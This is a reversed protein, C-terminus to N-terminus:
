IFLNLSCICHLMFVIHTWLFLPPTLHNKLNWHSVPNSWLLCNSSMKSSIIVANSQLVSTSMNWLHIDSNLWTIITIQKLILSVFLLVLFSSHSSLIHFCCFFFRWKKRFVSNEPKSYFWICDKLCANVGAPLVWTGCQLAQTWHGTGREWKQSFYFSLHLLLPEFSQIGVM